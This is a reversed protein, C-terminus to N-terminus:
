KWFLLRFYDIIVTIGSTKPSASPNKNETYNKCRWCCAKDMLKM